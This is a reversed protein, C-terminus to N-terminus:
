VMLLAKIADKARRRPERSTLNKLDRRIYKRLAKKISRKHRVAMHSGYKKAATCLATCCHRQMETDDSGDLAWILIKYARSIPVDDRKIQLLHSLLAVGQVRMRSDEHSALAFVPLYNEDNERPQMQQQLLLSDPRSRRQNLCFADFFTWLNCDFSLSGYGIKTKYFEVRFRNEGLRQLEINVYLAEYPPEPYQMAVWFFDSKKEFDAAIARITCEIERLSGCVITTTASSSAAM